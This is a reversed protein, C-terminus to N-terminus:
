EIANKYKSRIVYDYSEFSLGIRYLQTEASIIINKDLPQNVNIENM